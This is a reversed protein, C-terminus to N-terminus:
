ATLGLSQPAPTQQQVDQFPLGQAMRQKLHKLAIKYNSLDSYSAYFHQDGKEDQLFISFSLIQKDFEFQTLIKKMSTIVDKFFGHRKKLPCLYPWFVKKFM